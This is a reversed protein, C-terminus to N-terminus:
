EPKFTISKDVEWVLVRHFIYNSANFNSLDKDLIEMEVLYTKGNPLEGKFIIADAFFDEAEIFEAFNRASDRDKFYASRYMDGKKFQYQKMKNQEDMEKAQEELINLLKPSIPINNIEICHRLEMALWEVATLEKEKMKEEGNIQLKFGSDTKGGYFNTLTGDNFFNEYLKM